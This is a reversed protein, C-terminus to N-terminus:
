GVLGGDYEPGPSRYAAPSCPHEGSLPRAHKQRSPIEVIDLPDRGLDRTSAATGGGCPDVRGVLCLHVGIDVVQDTASMVDINREIRYTEGGWSYPCPM